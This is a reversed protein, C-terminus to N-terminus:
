RNAGSGWVLPELAHTAAQRTEGSDDLLELVAGVTRDSKTLPRYRIAGRDLTDLRQRDDLQKLLPESLFNTQYVREVKHMYDFDVVRTTNATEAGILSYRGTILRTASHAYGYIWDLDVFLSELNGTIRTALDSRRCVAWIDRRLGFSLIKIGEPVTIKIPEPKRAHISEPSYRAVTHVNEFHFFFETGAREWNKSAVSFHEVHMRALKINRKDWDGQITPELKIPDEVSRAILHLKQTLLAAGVLWKVLEIVRPQDPVKFGCLFFAHYKHM